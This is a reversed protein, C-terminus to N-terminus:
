SPARPAVVPQLVQEVLRVLVAGLDQLPVVVVVLLLVAVAMVLMKESPRM